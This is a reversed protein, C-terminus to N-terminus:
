TTVKPLSSFKEPSGHGWRKLFVFCFLVFCFFLGPQHPETSQASAQLAFPWQNSEQNPCIGPNHALIEVPQSSTLPSWNIYRECMSAERKKERGEWGELFLYTFDRFFGWCIKSFYLEYLFTCLNNLSSSLLNELQWMEYIPIIITDTM